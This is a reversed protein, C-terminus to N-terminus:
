LIDTRFAFGLNFFGFCFTLSLKSIAIPTVAVM